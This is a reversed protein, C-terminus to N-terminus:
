GCEEPYSQGFYCTPVSLYCIKSLAKFVGAMIGGHKDMVGAMIGGHKDCVYPFFSVCITLDSYIYIVM